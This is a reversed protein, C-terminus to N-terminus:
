LRPHSQVSLDGPLWQRCWAFCLQNGAADLVHRGDKRGTQAIAALRGREPGKSTRKRGGHGSESSHEQASGTTPAGELVQHLATPSGGSM